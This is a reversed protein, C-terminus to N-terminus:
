PMIEKGNRLAYAVARSKAAREDLGESLLAHYARLCALRYSPRTLDLAEPIKRTM